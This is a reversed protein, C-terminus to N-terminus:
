LYLLKRLYGGTRNMESLIQEYHIMEEQTFDKQSNSRGKTVQLKLDRFDPDVVEMQNTKMKDVLARQTQHTRRLDATRTPWKIDESIQVMEKETPIQNKVTNELKTMESSLAELRGEM